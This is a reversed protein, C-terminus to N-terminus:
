KAIEPTVNPVELLDEGIEKFSNAAEKLYHNIGCALVHVDIDNKQIHWVLDIFNPDATGLIVKDLKSLSKLIEITLIVNINVFKYRKDYQKFQTEYGLFNLCSIFKSSDPNNQMGCAVARYLINGGTAEDRYKAYDVKRGPFAKNVCFYINSVDVFLGITKM